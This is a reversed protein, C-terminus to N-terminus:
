KTLRDKISQPLEFNCAALTAENISIALDTAPQTQVAMKSVDAGNIIEVAMDATQAGLATYDIGYAIAGGADVMGGEGCVTLINLENCAEVITPMNSAILNDTPLYIVQAGASIAAKATTALSSADSVTKIITELGVKNGQATAADAQVKSNVESVNYIIGFKTATPVLEKILNIQDEVPNIDSTGTVNKGPAENKEVLGAEVADTVATFLVPINRDELNCANQLAVAAPTAIGLVIDNNRVLDTAMQNLTASDGEPNKVTIKIKDGDVFGKKALEAIFGDKASGLANHTVLQLIGVKIQDKERLNYSYGNKKEGGCSVLCLASLMLVMVLVCNLLKKM